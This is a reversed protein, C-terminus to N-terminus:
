TLRALIEGKGRQALDGVWRHLPGVRAALTDLGKSALFRGILSLLTLDTTGCDAFGPSPQATGSLAVLSGRRMALGPHM